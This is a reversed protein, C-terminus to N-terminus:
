VHGHYEGQNNEYPNKKPTEPAALPQFVRGTGRLFRIFFEFLVLRTTQISVVLGELVIIIINGIVIIIVALITNNATNALVMVALSLGAHALAFAGVRIFSITNIILQLLNEVLRGVATGLSRLVHGESVKANGSFYWFLGFVLITVFWSNIFSGIIGLYMAIFSADVLLWHKFESRWYAQVSNLFMGLLLIIAGAIMPMFLVNLPQEMPHVWLPELINESSFVSGFIFGFMVSAAGCGILVKVLPLRRQLLIGTMLLVMGQGVDGFMYGFLLPVLIMLLLSPDLEDRDPTGLLRTFLEFPQSWRPNHMVMPSKSGIPAPPYHVVARAAIQELMQDLQSGNIDNTWGTIWAFNESVPLDGVHTLFWEIQQIDGLANTLNFTDSLEDVGQKLQAIKHEIKHLRQQTQDRAEHRNGGLWKPPTLTRGKIINLDHQLSDLDSKIGVSLLFLHQHSNVRMTLVSPPLHEIRAVAPLVFLRTTLTPGANTFYTFDLINSQMHTLLQLLLSLEIQENQLTELEDIFLDAAKKWKNLRNMAKNLREAPQGPVDSPHLDQTPWFTQYRHMLRNYDELGDRLNPMVARKITESHSELEVNGLRALADVSKLLDDRSILIEFWRAPVPRITM